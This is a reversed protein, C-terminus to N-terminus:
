PYSRAAWAPVQGGAFQNSLRALQGEVTMDPTVQM